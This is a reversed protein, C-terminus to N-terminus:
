KFVNRIWSNGMLARRVPYLLVLSARVPFSATFMYNLQNGCGAAADNAPPMNSNSAAALRPTPLALHCNFQVCFHMQISNINFKHCDVPQQRRLPSLFTLPPFSPHMWNPQRAHAAFLSQTKSCKTRLKLAARAARPWLLCQLHCHPFHWLILCAILQRLGAIWCTKAPTTPAGFTEHLPLILLCCLTFNGTRLGEGGM